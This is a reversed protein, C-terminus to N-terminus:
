AVAERGLAQTVDIWDAFSSLIRTLAERTPQDVLAGDADFLAAGDRVYLVPAPLVISETAALVQRLANQALRTGWRGSSAGIIAIPKGVLVEEPGPRSLWDIANKLVGPISWNYEPTAILLGDAAKVASRLRRVAEPGGETAREIDEDFLPLERLGDDLSLQLGPPAGAIAAQLLRRNFSERRLSGSIALVRRRRTDRGNSLGM